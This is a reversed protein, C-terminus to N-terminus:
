VNRINEFTSRLPATDYIITLEKFKPEDIIKFVDMCDFSAISGDKMTWDYRFHGAVINKNQDSKMTEIFTIQSKNTDEFLEKYFAKASVKGYLPSHVVADETFLELLKNLDAVELGKLYKKILEESTM